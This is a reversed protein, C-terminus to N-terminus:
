DIRGLIIPYSLDGDEFVVVVSVGIQPAGAPGGGLPRCVRAWSMIDSGLQPLRVQARGKGQPDLANVVVGIMAGLIKGAM